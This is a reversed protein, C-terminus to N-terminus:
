SNHNNQLFIVWLRAIEAAPDSGQISKFQRIANAKDGTYYFAYAWHLKDLNPHKLNGKQFGQQMLPFGKPAQGLTVYTLGASVLASGSDDNAADKAAKDITAQDAAQKGVYDQLKKERAAGQDGPKGLTGNAFGQDMVRKAEGPNGDAMAQQAMQMYQDTPNQNPGPASLVGTALELRFIDLDYAESYDPGRQVSHIANAWNQVSPYYAVFQDLAVSYGATNGTKQDASLLILLQNETPKGGGRSAAQVQAQAERAANAYDGGFYYSELIIDRARAGEPGGGALYKQAWKIAQPYNKLTYYNAAVDLTLKVKQDAPLFESDILTQFAATASATDGAGSAASARLQNILFSEYGTKNPFADAERLKALADKYKRREILSKAEKIPGALEKHTVARKEEAFASPTAFHLAPVACLTLAATGIAGWAVYRFRTM